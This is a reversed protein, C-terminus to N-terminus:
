RSKKTSVGIVSQENVQKNPSVQPLPVKVSGFIKYVVATEGNVRDNLWDIIFPYPGADTHM